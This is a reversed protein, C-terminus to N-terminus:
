LEINNEKELEEELMCLSRFFEFLLKNLYYSDKMKDSYTAMVRNNFLLILYGYRGSYHRYQLQLIIDKTNSNYLLFNFINKDCIDFKVQQYVEFKTDIADLLLNYSCYFVLRQEYLFDIYERIKQKM